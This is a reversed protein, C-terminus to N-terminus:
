TGSPIGMAIISVATSNNQSAPFQVIVTASGSTVNKVHVTAEPSSPNVLTATVIPPTAFNNPSFNITQEAINSTGSVLLLEQAIVQAGYLKFSSPTDALRGQLIFNNGQALASGEESLQNIADALASIYAVDLPQGQQPIPVRAM